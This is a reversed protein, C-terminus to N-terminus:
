SGLHRAPESVPEGGPRWGFRAARPNERGEVVDAILPGLVPAFKFGHGSGGTAVVLGERDPDRGIWFDGDWTDCYLCLRHGVVPADALGPFAGSLFERFRAEEGPPMERSGHPDVRWGPGHNGVKVRGDSPHAPFGYWGTRSVDACWPPFEPAVYDDPRVPMFHYVPQGTAWMVDELWPLLGPTWAGAAVVVESGKIEDGGRSRVGSVRSGEELLSEFSVGERLRVGAEAAEAHLRGLAAGSEVWGARPNFYGDAYREANWAPHRERLAASDLRELPLGMELLLEHCEHEFGGPRMPERTMVLLGERHFLPRDWRENWAEWGELSEEALRAYFADAGYDPRVLKSIDTSSADPHPLPGPDLLVVERGRARLETAAVTGFVGAGVVITRSAQDM